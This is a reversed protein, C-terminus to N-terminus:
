SSRRSSSPDYPEGEKSVEFEASKGRPISLWQWESGAFHRALLVIQGVHYAYHTLQRNIATVVGHPEGRITVERELDRWDLGDIVGITLEWAADWSRRLAAASEDEREFERDRQRDPKEGDSTLFDTWRSRMNGAMHKMTIAISNTEADLATFLQEDTVQAIAKDALEKYKRLQRQVDELYRDRIM